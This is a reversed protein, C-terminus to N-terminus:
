FQIRKEPWWLNIQMSYFDIYDLPLNTCIFWLRSFSFQLRQLSTAQSGFCIFNRYYFWRSFLERKWQLQFHDAGQCIFVSFRCPLCPFCVCENTRVLHSLGFLLVKWSVLSCLSSVCYVSIYTTQLHLFVADCCYTHTMIARKMTNFNVVALNTYKERNFVGNNWNIKM